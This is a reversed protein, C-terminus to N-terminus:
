NCGVVHAGEIETSPTTARNQRAAAGFAMFMDAMCPPEDSSDSTTNLSVCEGEQLKRGAWSIFNREATNCHQPEDSYETGPEREIGVIHQYRDCYAPSLSASINTRDPSSLDAWQRPSHSSESCLSAQDDSCSFSDPHILAQMGITLNIWGPSGTSSHSEHGTSVNHLKKDPFALAEELPPFALREKSKFPNPRRINADLNERHMSGFDTHIGVDHMSLQM